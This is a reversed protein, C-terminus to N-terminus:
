LAPATCEPIIPLTVMSVMKLDVRGVGVTAWTAVSIRDANLHDNLCLRHANHRTIHMNVNSPEGVHVSDQGSKIVDSAGAMVEPSLHITMDAYMRGGIIQINCVQSLAHDCRMMAM